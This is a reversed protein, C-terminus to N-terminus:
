LFLEIRTSGLDELFFVDIGTFERRSAPLARRSIGRYSVVKVMQSSGARLKKQSSVIM